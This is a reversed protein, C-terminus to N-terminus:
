HGFVTFIAVSITENEIFFNLIVLARKRVIVSLCVLFFIINNAKNGVLRGFYIRLQRVPLYVVM